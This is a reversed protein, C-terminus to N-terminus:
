VCVCVCVMHGMMGNCVCSPLRCSLGPVGPVAPVGAVGLMVWRGPVVPVGPLVPVGLVCPVGVVGPVGPVAFMSLGLGGLWVSCVLCV